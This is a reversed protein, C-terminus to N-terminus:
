KVRKKTYILYGIGIISILLFIITTTFSLHAGSVIITTPGDAGGIIGISAADGTNLAFKNIIYKPIIYIYLASFITIVSTIITIISVIKHFKTNGKM